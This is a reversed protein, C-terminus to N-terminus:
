LDIVRAPDFALPDTASREGPYGRANCVVRTRGVRYDFGDHTHGHIWLEPGEARLWDDLDNVFYASVPDTRHRVALSGQSPAFHTIVCVKRGAAHQWRTRAQIWAFSRRFARQAYGPDLAAAEGTPSRVQVLRFDRMAERAVAAVEARREAGFLEFGTWLTAGLFAVGGTVCEGDQLIRVSGNGAAAERACDAQVDEVCGRYFEHNGLVYLVPISGFQACAWRVGNVGRDIDGALAVVDAEVEPATFPAYKLHLDSLVRVRVGHERIWIANM